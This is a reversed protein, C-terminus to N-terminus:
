CRRSDHENMQPYDSKMRDSAGQLCELYLLKILTEPCQRVSIIGLGSGITWPIASSVM